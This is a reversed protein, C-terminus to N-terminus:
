KHIRAERSHESLRPPTSRNIAMREITFIADDIPENVRAEKVDITLTSDRETRKYTVAMPFWVGSSLQELDCNLAFDPKGGSNRDYVRLEKILFGRTADVLIVDRLYPKGQADATNKIRYYESDGATEHEITWKFVGPFRQMSSEISEGLTKASNHRVGFDLIDPSPFANAYDSAPSYLSNRNDFQYRNLFNHEGDYLAFYKDNLIAIFREDKSKGADHWTTHKTLDQHYLGDRQWTKCAGEVTRRGGSITNGDPLPIEQEVSEERWSLEVYLSHINELASEHQRVVSRLLEPDGVDGAPQAHALSLCCATILAVPLKGLSCMDRTRLM